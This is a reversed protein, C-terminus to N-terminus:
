KNRVTFVYDGHTLHGDSTVVSWYVRYVGPRLPPIHVELLQPNVPDVQGKEMNVQQGQDNLVRMTSSNPELAADFWVRVWPPSVHLEAGAAPEAREPVAHAWAWCPAATCLAFGCLAIFLKNKFISM